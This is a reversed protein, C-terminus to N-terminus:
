FTHSVMAVISNSHAKNGLHEFRSYEYQLKLSTNPRIAYSVSASVGGKYLEGLNYVTFGGNNVSYIKQGVWGKIMHTWKGKYHYLSLGASHYSSNYGKAGADPIFIGNYEAELYFSGMTSAYTGFNYGAYPRFQWVNMSDWTRGSADNHYHTAYADLGINYHLYNYWNVGLIGTFAGDTVKDDSDIYHAGIKYALHYGRYRTYIATLDTQNLNPLNHRYKIRTHEVALELKNPARYISAYLGGVVASSKDSGSSYDIYGAYPLVTTMTKPGAFALSLSGLLMMSLKRM